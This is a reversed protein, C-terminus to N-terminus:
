TCVQWDNISTKNSHELFQLAESAPLPKSYYYGQILHCGLIQVLELQKHTEVGEVICKIELHSCLDVITGMIDRATKRAELDSVFARDIKLRDIQMKQIYGLSSYGTGFDDLAIEVGLNRFPLLVENAREFNVMMTTETIEFVLRKPPFGSKMIISMLRLTTEPSALDSASLNFSLYVDKPWSNAAELAKRLLVETLKSIIGLNEAAPIFLAPSVNGLQPSNWRGLAEMGAVRGTHSDIIPQYHSILEKELDARLLCQEMKRQGLIENKHNKSFVVASGKSNDKSHYLAYDAYEVLTKTTKAAAPFQAFGVSGGIQVTGFNLAFPQKLLDCIEAGLKELAEDNMSKNVIIGFEDGGLRAIFITTELQSSLRRGTALLLQDGAAHGYIDNVSKFGDLDIIGISFDLQNRVDKDLKSFFHRRNPLATLADVRSLKEVKIALRKHRVIMSVLLITAIICLGGLLLLINRSLHRHANNSDAALRTKEAAQRILLKIDLDTLNFATETNNTATEIEKRNDLWDNFQSAYANLHKVLESKSEPSWNRKEVISLTDNMRSFFKEIYEDDGRLMFDKEHRRLYMLNSLLTDDQLATLIAEANHASHRLKGELGSDQDLGISQYIEFQAQVALHYTQLQRFLSEIQNSPDDKWRNEIESYINQIEKEFSAKLKVDRTLMFEKEIKRLGVIKSEVLLSSSVMANHHRESGLTKASLFSSYTYYGISLILFVSITAAVIYEKRNMTNM